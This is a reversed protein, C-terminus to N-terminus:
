PNVSVNASAQYHGDHTYATIFVGSGFARATVLGSGDVLAVTSDTSEWIIAQDTANAPTVTASLQGTEGIAVFEIVQPTVKVGDAAVISAPDPQGPNSCAGESLSLLVVAIQLANFRM